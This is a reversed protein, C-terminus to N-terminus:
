LFLVLFLLGKIGCAMVSLMTGLHITFSEEMRVHHPQFCDEEGSTPSTSTLARVRQSCVFTFGCVLHQIMEVLEIAAVDRPKPKVYM